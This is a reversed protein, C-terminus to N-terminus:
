DQISFGKIRFGLRGVGLVWFGQFEIGLVFAEFGQGKLYLATACVIVCEVVTPAM